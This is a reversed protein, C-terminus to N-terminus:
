GIKRLIPSYQRQIIPTQVGDVSLYMSGHVKSPYEKVVLEKKYVPNIISKVDDYVTKAFSLLSSNSWKKILRSSFRFSGYAVPFSFNKLDKIIENKLNVISLTIEENESDINLLQNNLNDLKKGVMTTFSSNWSCSADTVSLEREIIYKNKNKVSVFSPIIIECYDDVVQLIEIENFENFTSPTLVTADIFSTGSSCEAAFIGDIYPFCRHLFPFLENNKSAFNYESVFLADDVVVGNVVSKINKM